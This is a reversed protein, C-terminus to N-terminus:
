KAAKDCLLRYDCFGCIMASPTAEFRSSQISQAIETLDERTQALQEPSRTTTVIEGDGLYYLSLKSVKLRFIEECALAYISLQLDKDTDRQSKVRGTKYDIVHVTGDSLQDIRDIRGSVVLGAGPKLTFGKELYKPRVWPDSNMSFFSELMGWGKQKRADMHARSDYGAPIWHKDYLERMLDLSVEKGELIYQYFANLTNHVSSGFSAAHSLPESLNYVYRFKYKLPCMEFTNIRSFSLRLSRHQRQMGFLIPKEGLDDQAVVPTFDKNLRVAGDEYFTVMDLAQSEEVFISPKWKKRGGYHASYTMFLNQKARTLAVYFLRREEMLHLDLDENVERLLSEPFPLPARRNVSPFRHQVLNVVFVTTFELGKSAHITLIKVADSDSSGEVPSPRDGAEQRAMLYDLCSMLRQDMSHGEEFGRIVQSFAAINQLKEASDSTSQGELYALFGAEKLFFGLVHSTPSSKSLSSLQSFLDVFSALGTSGGGVGSFLDPTELEKKVVDSLPTRTTKAKSVLQLLYEMEFEFVDMSLVRFFAIDDYPNSLARLLAMLDKIEDRQYLGQAGSFFYPIGRSSLEEIFPIAHANTRVLIACESRPVGKQLQREIEDAVFQVESLYHEFALVEPMRVALDVRSKLRKDLGERSELRYPNNNQIVGHSLDLISQASRYNETLVVKRAEPFRAEFELINALSAGRWKYISQDDDGVVMLNSHAGSLLTVLRNQATNTDQFEDVLVYKFREQYERLVSPRGEFLRLTLSHLSSFDLVSHELLLEDYRQYARALERTKSKLDVEAEDSEPLTEAYDLYALPTILEDRLRGFHSTLAVVFRTPNGLPRYHDLEFSFLNERLFMWLDAQTLLRYSTDLGLELGRERLVAECFGHFTKVWLEGYSYPLAVDLREQMEQTAKETFTLALVEEPKAVGDEILRVIRQTLVKTKGTGAGAIILLPGDRHNVAEGQKENLMTMLLPIM